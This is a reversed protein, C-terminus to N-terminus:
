FVLSDSTTELSKAIKVITSLRPETLCRKNKTLNQRSIGSRRSIENWSIDKENAIREVNAWFTIESM